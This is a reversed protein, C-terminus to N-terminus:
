GIADEVLANIFESPAIGDAELMLPYLSSDTMGPMTNIENFYLQGDSSLFFDIRAIGEVGIQECIISSYSRITAATKEDVDARVSVSAETSLYKREFSYFSGGTEIKGPHTVRKEGKICLYACELETPNELLREIMAQGDGIALAVDVAKELEVRNRAIGVGISSGLGSPKVFVPYEFVKEARDVAYSATANTVPVWPLTPIGLTLATAKTFRKDGALAGARTKCGVFRAGLSELLGQIRGDEGFDGHLMPFVANAEIFRRRCLFGFRGNKMIPHVTFRRKRRELLWDGDRTIIIKLVSFRSVDINKLVFKGGALSIEHEVGKGGFLVAVTPKKRTKM